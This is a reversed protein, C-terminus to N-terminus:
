SSTFVGALILDEYLDVPILYPRFRDGQPINTALRGKWLFFPPKDGFVGSGVIREYLDVDIAYPRPSGEADAARADSDRILTSANTAMHFGGKALGASLSERAECRGARLHQRRLQARRDRFRRRLRLKPDFPGQRH